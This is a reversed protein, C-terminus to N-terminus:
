VGCFRGLRQVPRTHKQRPKQGSQVGVSRIKVSRLAHEAEAMSRCVRGAVFADQVADESLYVSRLVSNAAALAAGQWRLVLEGYAEKDGALTM